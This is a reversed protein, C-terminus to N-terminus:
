FARAGEQDRIEGRLAPARRLRRHGHAPLGQDAPAGRLGPPVARLQHLRPLGPPPDPLQHEPLPQHVPRPGQLGAVAADRHWPRRHLPQVPPLHARLHGPVQLAARASPPQALAEQLPLQPVPLRPPLRGRGPVPRHHYGPPQEVPPHLSQLHQAQREEPMKPLLGGRDPRLAGQLAAPPLLGHVEKPRLAHRLFKNHPKNHNSNHNSNNQHPLAPRHRSFLTLIFPNCGRKITKTSPATLAFFYSLHNPHAAQKRKFDKM